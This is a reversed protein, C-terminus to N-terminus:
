SNETNLKDAQQRLSKIKDEIEQELKRVKAAVKKYEASAEEKVDSFKEKLDDVVNEDLANLKADLDAKLGKTKNKLAERTEKGSSPALMLGAVAGAAVGIILGALLNSEKSM